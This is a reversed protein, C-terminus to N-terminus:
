KKILVWRLQYINVPSSFLVTEYPEAPNSIVATVTGFLSDSLTIDSIIDGQKIQTAQPIRAEYQGGGRGIATAPVHNPGIMVSYSQGPSSFLTVKSTEGLVDTTTGILVDGPAYVKAGATVGENSGADIILEDYGILPPHVLVAGLIGKEYMIETSSGTTTTTSGVVNSIAISSTSARGFASMIQENEARVMDTSANQIMLEQIQRKLAENESLLQSQSSLSGSGISFEIRWFPSAISTFLGPLVYPIFIQLIAFLVVAGGIIIAILRTRHHSPRKSTQIYM